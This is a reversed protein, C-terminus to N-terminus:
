FPVEEPLVDAKGPGKSGVDAIEKAGEGNRGMKREYEKYTREDNRDQARGGAERKERATKSEGKGAGSKKGSKGKGGKIGTAKQVQSIPDNGTIKMIGVIVLFLGLLILGFREFFDSLSSVGISSLLGKVLDQGINSFIDSSNTGGAGDSSSAAGKWNGSKADSFVQEAAAIRNSMDPIGAREFQQEFYQAASSANPSNSNISSVTGGNKEIYAMLASLQESLSGGGVSGGNSLTEGFLGGGAGSSSGPNGHSEQYINGEIGSAAAMNFGQGVLYEYIAQENQMPGTPFPM